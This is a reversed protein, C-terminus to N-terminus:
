STLRPSDVRNFVLLFLNIFAFNFYFDEIPIDGIRLGVIADSGYTVIPLGTLVSNFILFLGLLLLQFAWFRKTFALRSLVAVVVTILMAIAAFRTYGNSWQSILLWVSSGAALGLFLLRVLIMASGDAVFKKVVGWVYIMAFPVTVFFLYEEIPMGFLSVGTIYQGNFAWHGQSVAWIDWIIFPLSVLFYGALLGKVHKHPKIDTKFSLVLVPLFIVLNIFLYLLNRM